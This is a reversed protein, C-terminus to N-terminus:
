SPATATSPEAPGAHANAWNKVGSTTPVLVIGNSDDPARTGFTVSSVKMDHMLAGNEFFSFHPIVFTSKQQAQVLPLLCGALALMSFFRVLDAISLTKRM